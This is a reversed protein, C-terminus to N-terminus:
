FCSTLTLQHPENLDGLDESWSKFKQYTDIPKEGRRHSLEMRKLSIVRDRDCREGSMDGM